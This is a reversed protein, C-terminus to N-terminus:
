KPNAEFICVFDNNKVFSKFCSGCSACKAVYEPNEIWKSVIDPERLFPRAMSVIDCVGDNVFKEAMKCSRIGGVVAIRANGHGKVAQMWAAAGESHYGDCGGDKKTRIPTYKSVHTGGSAEILALGDDSLWQAVQSSEEITLGGEAFDCVNM